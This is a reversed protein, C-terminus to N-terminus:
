ANFNLDMFADFRRAYEADFADQGGVEAIFAPHNTYHEWYDLNERATEIADATASM